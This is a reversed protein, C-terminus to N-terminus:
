YFLSEIKIDKLEGYFGINRRNRRRRRKKKSASSYHDLYFEIARLKQIDEDKVKAARDGDMMIKFVTECATIRSRHAEIDWVFVFVYGPIVKKRRHIQRGRSIESVYYVPVFVGFGREALWEVTDFERGAYVELVHWKPEKDEIYNANESARRDSAQEAAEVRARDELSMELRKFNDYLSMGPNSITATDSKGKIQAM